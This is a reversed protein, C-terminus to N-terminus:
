RLFGKAYECCKAGKQVQHRAGVPATGQKNEEVITQLLKTYTKYLNM